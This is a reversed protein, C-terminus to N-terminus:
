WADAQQWRLVATIPDPMKAAYAPAWNNILRKGRVLMLVNLSQEIKRSLSPVELLFRRACNELKKGNGSKAQNTM